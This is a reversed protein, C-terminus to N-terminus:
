LLRSMGCPSYSKPRLLVPALIFRGELLDSLPWFVEAPWYWTTKDQKDGDRTEIRSTIKEPEHHRLAHLGACRWATPDDLQDRNLPLPAVTKDRVAYIVPVGCRDQWREAHRFANADWGISGDKRRPEKSKAEFGLRLPAVVELDPLHIPGDPGYAKAASGGSARDWNAQNPQVTFGAVEALLDVLLWEALDGEAKTAAFDRDARPFSM